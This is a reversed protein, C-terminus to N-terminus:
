FAQGDSGPEKVRNTSYLQIPTYMYLIILLLFYRRVLFCGITENNEDIAKHLLTQQCGGPGEGWMNSDCGHRM